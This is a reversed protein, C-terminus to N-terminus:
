QRYLDDIIAAVLASRQDRTRYGALADRLPQMMEDFAGAAEQVAKSRMRKETATQRDRLVWAASDSHQEGTLAISGTDVSTHGDDKATEDVTFLAGIPATGLRKSYWSEQQEGEVRYAHRVADGAALVRGAYAYTKTTM